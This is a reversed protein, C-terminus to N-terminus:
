RVWRWEHLNWSVTDLSGTVMPGDLSATRPMFELRYVLAYGPLEESLVKLLQVAYSNKETRSLTREYATVLREFEPHNFGPFNGGLNRTEPRPIESARFRTLPPEIAPSFNGTLMGAYTHFS